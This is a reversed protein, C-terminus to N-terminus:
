GKAEAAANHRVQWVTAVEKGQVKFGVVRSVAEATPSGAATFNDRANEAVLADIAKLILPQREAPDSPAKDTKTDDGVSPASGDAPTAGIALAEQYLAPPVHTPVDKVFQISFGKTSSLTYNRNLVLMTASHQEKSM